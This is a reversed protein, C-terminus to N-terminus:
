IPSRVTWAVAPVKAKAGRPRMWLNELGADFGALARTMTDGAPNSFARSSIAASAGPPFSGGSISFSSAMALLYPTLITPAGVPLLQIIRVAFEIGEDQASITKERTSKPWAWAAPGRRM